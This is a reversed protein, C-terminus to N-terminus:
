KAYGLAELRKRMEPDLPAAPAPAARQEKAIEADLQTRLQAAVDPHQSIVDFLDASALDLGESSPAGDTTAPADRFRSTSARAGRHPRVELARQV